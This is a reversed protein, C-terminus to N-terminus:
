QVFEVLLSLEVLEERYFDVDTVHGLEVFVAVQYNDHCAASLDVAWFSMPVTHSGVCLSFCLLLKILNFGFLLFGFLIM